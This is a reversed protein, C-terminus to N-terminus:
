PQLRTRTWAQEDDLAPPVPPAPSGSQGSGAATYRVRDHLRSPQGVWLEVEVPRVRFGGWYDPLPVDLGSGTDPWRAEEAEVAAVLETRSGIPQSQHSVRSAIQSGRPRSAFYAASDARSVPEVPGRLRVQRYMPHWLLVLAAYPSGALELAKTSGLNTYLEAGRADLGKLLVTRSNAHGSSDVTSLVMAAPDAVREDAEAEAYWQALLSLPAAPLDSGLGPADYVRRATPDVIFDSM